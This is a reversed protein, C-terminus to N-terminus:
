PTPLAPVVHETLWSQWAQPPAPHAALYGLFQPADDFISMGWLRFADVYNMDPEFSNAFDGVDLGLAWPPTVDGAALM